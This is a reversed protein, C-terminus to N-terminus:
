REPECRSPRWHPSSRSGLVHEDGRDGWFMAALDSRLTPAGTRSALMALIAQACHAGAPYGRGEYDFDYLEQRAVVSQLPLATYPRIEQIRITRPEFIFWNVGSFESHRLM